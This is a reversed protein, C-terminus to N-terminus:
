IPRFLFFLWIKDDDTLDSKVDMYTEASVKLVSCQGLALDVTKTIYDAPQIPRNIVKKRNKFFNEITGNTMRSVSEDVNSCRFVFGSWIFCYPLFADQLFKILDENKLDNEKM